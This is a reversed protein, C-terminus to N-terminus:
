FQDIFQHIFQRCYSFLFFLSLLTTTSHCVSISLIRKLNLFRSFISTVLIQVEAGSPIHNRTMRLLWEAMVDKM